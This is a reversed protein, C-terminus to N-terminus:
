FSLHVGINVAVTNVIALVCFCGLNRDVSSHICFIHYISLCVCLCVCVCVGM